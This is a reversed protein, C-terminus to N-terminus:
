CMGPPDNLPDQSLIHFCVIRGHILLKENEKRAIALWALGGKNKHLVFVLRENRLILSM